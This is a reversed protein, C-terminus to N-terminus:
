LNVNLGSIEQFRVKRGLGKSLAEAIATATRGSISEGNIARKLTNFDIGAQRALESQSWGCEKRFDELTM